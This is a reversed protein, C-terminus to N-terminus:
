QEILNNDRVPFLFAHECERTWATAFTQLTFHASSSAIMNIGTNGFSFKIKISADALYSVTSKEDNM